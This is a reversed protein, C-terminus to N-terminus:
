ISIIAVSILVIASGIMKRLLGKEDFFKGGVIVGFIGSTQKIITVESASLVSYAYVGFVSAIATFFGLAIVDRRFFSKRGVRDGKKRKWAWFGILGLVFTMYIFLFPDTNTAGFRLVLSYITFILAVLLSLLIGRRNAAEIPQLIRNEAVLIYVGLTGLLAGALISANFDIPFFFPESVAVFIPTTKRLPETLSIDTERMAEVYLYITSLVVGTSILLSVVLKPNWVLGKELFRWAALPFLLIIGYVQGIFGIEVSSFDRSVHKRSSERFTSLLASILAAVFALAM